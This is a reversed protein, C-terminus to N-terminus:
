KRVREPLLQRLTRRIRKVWTPRLCVIVTGILIVSSITVACIRRVRSGGRSTRDGSAAPAQLVKVLHQCEETSASPNGGDVEPVLERVRVAASLFNFVEHKSLSNDADADMVKFADAGVSQALAEGWSVSGDKDGDITAFRKAPGGPGHLWLELGLLEQVRPLAMGADIGNSAEALVDLLKLVQRCIDPEAAQECSSPVIAMARVLHDHVPQRSLGVKGSALPLFRSGARPTAEIPGVKVFARKATVGAPLLGIAEPPPLPADHGLPPLVAGPRLHLEGGEGLTQLNPPTHTTGAQLFQLGLVPLIQLPLRM